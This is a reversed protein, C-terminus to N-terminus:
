QQLDKIKMELFKIIKKTRDPYEADLYIKEQVMM